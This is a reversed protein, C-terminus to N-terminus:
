VTIGHGRSGASLAHEHDVVLLVDDSEDRVMERLAAVAHGGCRGPGLRQLGRALLARRDYHEVEHQRPHGPELHELMQTRGLARSLHCHQHERRSALLRVADAAEREAGVVIEGLWEARLLEHQPHARNQSTERSGAGRRAIRERDARDLDIARRMAHPDVACSISSVAVSNLSSSVNASRRPRTCPRACRSSVTHSAAGSMWVRVTSMCM